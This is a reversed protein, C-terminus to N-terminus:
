NIAAVDFGVAVTGADVVTGSLQRNSAVNVVRVTQGLAADQLAKGQVSLTMQGTKVVVRILDNKHIVPAVAVDSQRLVQGAKLPRKAM